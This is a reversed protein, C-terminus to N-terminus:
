NVESPIWELTQRHGSRKTSTAPVPQSIGSRTFDQQEAQPLEESARELFWPSRETLVWIALASLTTLLFLDGLSFTLLSRLSYKMAANYGPVQARRFGSLRGVAM